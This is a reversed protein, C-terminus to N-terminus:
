LSLWLFLSAGSGLAKQAYTQLEKIFQAADEKSWGDMQLEETAAWSAAIAPIDSQGIGAIAALIEPPFKFVWPGEEENGAVLSFSAQIDDTYQANTAACYLTSLKITEVGKSELTPWQDAPRVAEGIAVADNDTAVVFDTLIGM